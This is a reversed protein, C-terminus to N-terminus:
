NRVKKRTKLVLVTAVAAIIMAVVAYIMTSNDGYKGVLADIASQLGKVMIDIENQSEANKNKLLEQAKELVELMAAWSEETYNEKNLKDVSAVLEELKSYDLEVVPTKKVLADIAAQLAAVMDDIEQQTQANGVLADADALVDAMAKWSDETYEDEVLDKAKEILAVLASYDLEVVPEKLKLAKIAAQLAAVMDDIEQQTEANRNDLLAKADALVAEMAAWSEKTYQDEVLSDAYKVLVELASYDLVVPTEEVVITITDVTLKEEEPLVGDESVAEHKFTVECKDGAKATSAVVVELVIDFTMNDSLFYSFRGDKENYEVEELGLDPITIKLSSVVDPDSLTFAGYIGAVDTYKYTLSVTEGAQATVVDTAVAAFAPISMTFVLVATLLLAFLNKTFKM